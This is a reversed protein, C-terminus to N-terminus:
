KLYKSSDIIEYKFYGKNQEIWNSNNKLDIASSNILREKMSDNSFPNALKGRSLNKKPNYTTKKIKM